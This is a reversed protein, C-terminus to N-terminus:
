LHKNSSFYFSILLPFSLHTSIPSFYHIGGIKWGTLKLLGNCILGLCLELNLYINKMLSVLYFIDVLHHRSVSLLPSIKKMCSLSNLSNFICVCCYVVHLVQLAAEYILREDSEASREDGIGSRYASESSIAFHPTIAKGLVLSPPLIRNGGNQYLSHGEDHGRILSDRIYGRDGSISPGVGQRRNKFADHVHSTGTNDKLNSSRIDSVFLPSPLARTASPQLTSPLTRKFAQM